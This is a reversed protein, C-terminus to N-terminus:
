RSTKPSSFPALVAAAALACAAMVAHPRAGLAVTLPIAALAAAGAIRSARRRTALAALLAGAPALLTLAAAWSLSRAGVLSLSLSVGVAVGGAAALLAEVPDRGVRRAAWIALATSAIAAAWGWRSSRAAPVRLAFPEVRGESVCVLEDADLGPCTWGEAADRSWGRPMNAVRRARAGGPPPWRLAFARPPAAAREFRVIVRRAGRPPQRAVWGAASVRLELRRGTAADTAVPRVGPSVAEPLLLEADDSRAYHARVVVLERLPADDVLTWEEFAAAARLLAVSVLLPVM